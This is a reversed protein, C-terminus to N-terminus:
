VRRMICQKGEEEDDDEDAEAQTKPPKADKGKELDGVQDRWETLEKGITDKATSITARLGVYYGGEDKVDFTQTKSPNLSSQPTDAPPKLNYTVTITRSM